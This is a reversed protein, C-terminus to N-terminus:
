FIRWILVALCTHKCVRSLQQWRDPSVVSSEKEALKELAAMRENFPQKLLDHRVESLRTKLAQKWLAFANECINLFPSYPPLYQIQFGHPLDALAARVHARM